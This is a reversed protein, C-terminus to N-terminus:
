IVKGYQGMQKLYMAEDYDKQSTYGQRQWIEVVKKKEPKTPQQQELEWDHGWDEKLANSLFGAYSKAAKANCYLINRRVYDFGHKKEFATLATQVTKKVKHQEPILAM